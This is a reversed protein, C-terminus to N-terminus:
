NVTFHVIACAVSNSTETVILISVVIKDNM